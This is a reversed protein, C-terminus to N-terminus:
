SYKQWRILHIWCIESGFYSFSLHRNHEYPQSIVSGAPTETLILEFPLSPVRGMDFVINDFRLTSAHIPSSIVINRSTCMQWAQRMCTSSDVLLYITNNPVTRFILVYIDRHRLTLESIIAIKKMPKWCCVTQKEQFKHIVTKLRENLIISKKKCHCM